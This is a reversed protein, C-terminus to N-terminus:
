RCRDLIYMGGLARVRVSTGDRSLEYSNAETWRRGEGTYTLTATITGDKETRVSTPTGVAEYFAISRATVRIGTTDEKGCHAANDTWQGHLNAPFTPNAAALLTAVVLSASPM